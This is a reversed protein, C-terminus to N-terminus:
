LAEYRAVRGGIVNLSDVWFKKDTIDIGFGLALETATGEGTGALLAKYEPVFAAGRQKYIAYLGTAFLLGFTYPYNYFSLSPFYYHPKWTWMYPQLYDSDLGDGYTAKQARAMIDCLDEASLENQARREFVGKEFLYRSYIDVVVQSADILDNELIALEEEKSQANELAADTIITQCMISATEAMTMPTNQQLMTKGIACENHFGHGLEHALTGVSDLSGDFNLLIRSENVAPLGMCFAGARKGERPGVDIWNKEVAKRAYDALSPSFAGFHTIVFNASEEYSFVREAQGMPAFLDWWPLATKGLRKAKAKFYRRFMPFSEEMAELMANLTARDIRSMDLSAHIADERGRMRSLVNESGKLGNMCAALVNEVTKWAQNEAEYGRRRMTEDAHSRLNLIWTIPKKETKGEETEIEWTLQSTVVGHLKYWGVPGSLSLEAALAEEPQSMLYKSQEATEKLYFAHDHASGGQSIIEPLASALKGIQATFLTDQQQLRVMHPELQSMLRPALTNFSDTTLISHLYAQLTIALEYAANSRDIYGSVIRNLEVPDAAAKLKGIKNKRVYAEMEDAMQALKQMDANFEASEMGPYVNSLDWRPLEKSMVTETM